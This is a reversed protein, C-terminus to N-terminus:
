FNLFTTNAEFHLRKLFVNISQCTEVCKNDTNEVYVDSDCYCVNVTM